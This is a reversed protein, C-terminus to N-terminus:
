GYTHPESTRKVTANQDKQASATSPQPQFSSLKMCETFIRVVDAMDPLSQTLREVSWVEQIREFTLAQAAIKLMFRMATLSPQATQLENFNKVGLADLLALIQLM